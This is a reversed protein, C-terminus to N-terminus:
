ITERFFVKLVVFLVFMCMIWNVFCQELVLLWNIKKM